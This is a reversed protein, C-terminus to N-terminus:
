GLGLNKWQIEIETPSTSPTRLICGRMPSALMFQPLKCLRAHSKSTRVLDTNANIVNRKLDAEEMGVEVNFERCEIINKEGECTKTVYKM